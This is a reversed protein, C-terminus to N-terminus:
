VKEETRAAEKGNSKEAYVNAIGKSDKVVKIRVDAAKTVAQHHTINIVQRGNVRAYESLFAATKEVADLDAHKTIEDLCLPGRVEAYEIIALQLATAAITVKGGGKGVFPRKLQIETNGDFIFYDVEHQNRRETLRIIFRHGEGYISNLAASVIDELHSIVSKKTEESVARLLMNVKNNLVQEESNDKLSTCAKILKQQETELNARHKILTREVKDLRSKVDALKQKM